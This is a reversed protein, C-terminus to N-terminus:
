GSLSLLCLSFCGASAGRGSMGGFSPFPQQWDASDFRGGSCAAVHSLFLRVRENGILLNECGSKNVLNTTTNM